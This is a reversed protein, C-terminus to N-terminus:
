PETPTTQRRRRLYDNTVVTGAPLAALIIAM